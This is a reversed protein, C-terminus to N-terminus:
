VDLHKEVEERLVINEKYLEDKLVKIEQFAKKSDAIDMVAGVARWYRSGRAMEATIRSCGRPSSLGDV